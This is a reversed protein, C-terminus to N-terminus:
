VEVEDVVRARMVAEPSPRETDAQVESARDRDRLHTLWQPIERADEDQLLQHIRSCSVGTATAIQRISLGAEYAAVIAWIREREAAECRTTAWQRRVKLSREHQVRPRLAHRTDMHQPYENPICTDLLSSPIV